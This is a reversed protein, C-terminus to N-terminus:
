NPMASITKFANKKKISLSFNHKTFLFFLTKKDFYHTWVPSLLLLKVRAELFLTKECCLLCMLGLSVRLCDGVCKELILRMRAHVRM